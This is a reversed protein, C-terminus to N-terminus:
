AKFWRGPLSLLGSIIKKGISSNRVQESEEVQYQKLLQPSKQLVIYKSLAAQLHSKLVKVKVPKNLFRFIQAQNILEIVMDSDSAATLVITLIQRPVNRPTDVDSMSENKAISYHIRGTM